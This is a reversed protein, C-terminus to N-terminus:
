KEIHILCLQSSLQSLFLMSVLRTTCRVLTVPETSEAMATSCHKELITCRVLSCPVKSVGMAVSFVSLYLPLSILSFPSVVCVMAFTQLYMDVKKAVFTLKLLTHLLTHTYFGPRIASRKHSIVSVTNTISKANLLPGVM